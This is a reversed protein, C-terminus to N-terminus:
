VVITQAMLAEADQQLSTSFYETTTDIIFFFQLDFEVIQTKV